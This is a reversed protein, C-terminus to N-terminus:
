RPAVSSFGSCKGDGGCQSNILFHHVRETAQFDPLPYGYCTYITDVLQCCNSGNNFCSYTTGGVAIKQCKLIWGQCQTAATHDQGTLSAFIVAIFFVVTTRNMNM